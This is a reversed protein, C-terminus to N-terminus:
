RLPLAGGAPALLRGDVLDANYANVADLEDQMGSRSFPVGVAILVAGALLCVAASVLAATQGTSLATANSPTALVAGLEVVVAAVLAGAGTGTLVAGTVLDDHAQKALAVARPSGEVALDLGKAYLSDVLTVGQRDFKFGGWASPGRIEILRMSLPLPAPGGLAPPTLVLPGPPAPPVPAQARAWASWGVLLLAGLTGSIRM